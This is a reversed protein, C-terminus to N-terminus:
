RLDKNNKRYGDRVKYYMTKLQPQVEMAHRYATMAIAERRQMKKESIMLARKTSEPLGTLGLEGRIAIRGDVGHTHPKREPTATDQGGEGATIAAKAEARRVRHLSSKHRSQTLGPKGRLQTKDSRSNIVTGSPLRMETTSLKIAASKVPETAEEDGGDSLDWFDLLESEADMNIMCHGKDRMHTQVSNVNSKTLGCYLCENYEFIITGIYGLFSELDSLKDLSPIFLGHASSMHELNADLTSSNLNCFLCQTPSTDDTIDHEAPTPAVVAPQKGDRNLDSREHGPSSVTIEPSHQNESLAPLGAIRRRLNSM